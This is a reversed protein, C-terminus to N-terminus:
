LETSSILTNGLMWTSASSGVLILKNQWSHKIFQLWNAANSIIIVNIQMCYRLKEKQCSFKWIIIKEVREILICVSRNYCIMEELFIFFM